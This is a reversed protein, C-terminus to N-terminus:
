AHETSLQSIFCVSEVAALMVAVRELVPFEPGFVQMVVARAKHVINLAVQIFIHQKRTQARSNPLETMVRETVLEALAICIFAYDDHAVAISEPHTDSYTHMMEFAQMLTSLEQSLIDNFERTAFNKNKLKINKGCLAINLRSCYYRYMWKRDMDSCNLWNWNQVMRWQAMACNEFRDIAQEDEGFSALIYAFNQECRITCLHTKGLANEYDQLITHAIRMVADYDTMTVLMYLVDNEVGDRASTGCQESAVAGRAHKCGEMLAAESYDHLCVSCQRGLTEWYRVSLQETSVKWMCGGCVYLTKCRCGCLFVSEETFCCFCQNAQM